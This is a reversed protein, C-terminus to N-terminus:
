YDGPCATGLGFLKWTGGTCNAIWAQGRGIECDYKCSFEARCSACSTGETPMVAPCFTCPEHDTLECTTHPAPESMACSGPGDVQADLDADTRGASADGDSAQQGGCSSTMALLACALAGRFSLM